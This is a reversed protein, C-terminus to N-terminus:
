FCGCRESESDEDTQFTTSRCGEGLGSGTPETADQHGVLKTLVTFLINVVHSSLLLILNTIIIFLLIKSCTRGAVQFFVNM